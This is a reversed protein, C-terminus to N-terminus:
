ISRIKWAFLTHGSIFLASIRKNLKPLLGRAAVGVVSRMPSKDVQEAKIEHPNTPDYVTQELAWKFCALDVAKGTNCPYDGGYLM